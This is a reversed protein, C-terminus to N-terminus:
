DVDASAEVHPKDGGQKGDALSPGKPKRALPRSARLRGARAKSAKEPPLPPRRGEAATDAHWGAAEDRMEYGEVDREENNEWYMASWASKKKKKVQLSNGCIKTVLWACELALQMTAIDNSLFLGDDAYVLQPVSEGAATFESAGPHSNALAGRTHLSLFFSFLCGLRPIPSSSLTWVQVLLIKSPRDPPCTPEGAGSLPCSLSAARHM